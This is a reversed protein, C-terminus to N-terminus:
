RRCLISNKRFHFAAIQVVTQQICMWVKKRSSVFLPVGRICLKLIIGMEYRYGRNWSLSNVRKYDWKLLGVRRKWFDVQHESDITVLSVEENVVISAELFPSAANLRYSSEFVISKAITKETGSFLINRLTGDSQLLTILCRTEGYKSVIEPIGFFVQM